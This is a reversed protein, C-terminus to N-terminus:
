SCELVAFVTTTSSAVSKVKLVGCRCVVLPLCFLIAIAIFVWCGAVVGVHVFLVAGRAFM